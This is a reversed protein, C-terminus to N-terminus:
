GGVERSGEWVIKGDEGSVEIMLRTKRLFLDNPLSGLAKYLTEGAYRGADRAFQPSVEYPHTVSLTIRRSLQIREAGIRKLLAEMFMPACAIWSTRAYFVNIAENRIQHNTALLPPLGRIADGQAPKHSLYYRKASSYASKSPGSHLALPSNSWHWMFSTTSEEFLFTYIANRLEPPLELLPSPTAQQQDAM